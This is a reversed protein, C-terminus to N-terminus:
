SRWREHQRPEFIQQATSSRILHRAEAIDSLEGNAIFQVVANGLVTAEVPGAIVPIGTADATFQNLLANQSGGGVIHIVEVNRRSIQKLTDLVRAYKFALSECVCRIIEAHSTPIPKSHEACWQQILAPHDGPKLFRDDDVDIITRLPTATEALQALESYSYEAGQAKWTELCQQVIWLGMVNKLLRYTGAVGGENTVNARYAADTLLPQDIELGVLSWTGSSIYAYNRTSAPVGAVASATDHCAPAIIPIDHYSGIRTGPQIIHPFLRTPIGLADMLDTAWTGTAPNLMQTTTANTFECAISGTLWYNLLDPITLFTAARKLLEPRNRVLSMMQYLTNIQMFQIGTQGFVTERPVIRFVEDMMGDTRSDRYHAPNEILTGHEDLLGFDVAWTDIGISVPNMSRASELCQEVNQRLYAADWQMSAGTTQGHLVRMPFRSIMQERLRGNELHVAMVRGSEAGIDIAIVTKNAKDSTRSTTANPM